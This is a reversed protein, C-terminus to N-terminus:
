KDEAIKNARKLFVTKNVKILKDMDEKSKTNCYQLYHKNDGLWACFSRLEKVFVEQIEMPYKFKRWFSPYHLFMRFLYELGFVESPTRDPDVAPRENEPTHADEYTMIGWHPHKVNHLQQINYFQPKEIEYALGRFISEHFCLMVYMCWDAAVECRGVSGRKRLLYKMYKWLVNLICKDEDVPLKMNYNNQMLIDYQNNLNVVIFEPLTIRKTPWDLICLFYLWICSMGFPNTQLILWNVFFFIFFRIQIRHVHDWGAEGKEEESLPEPTEPVIVDASFAGEEVASEPSAPM